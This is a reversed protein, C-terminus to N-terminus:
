TEVHRGEYLGMWSFPCVRSVPAPTFITRAAIKLGSVLRCDKPSPGALDQQLLRQRQAEDELVLFCFYLSFQLFSKYCLLVNRSM